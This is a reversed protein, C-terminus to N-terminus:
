GLIEQQDHCSLDLSSPPLILSSGAPEGRTEDKM